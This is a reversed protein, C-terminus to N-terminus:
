RFVRRDYSQVTYWEGTKPALAQRIMKKIRCKVGSSLELTLITYDDTMYPTTAVMDYGGQRAVVTGADGVGCISIREQARSPGPVLLAM